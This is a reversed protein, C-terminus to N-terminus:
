GEIVVNPYLSNVVLSPVFGRASSVVKKDSLAIIRAQIQVGRGQRVMTGSLVYDVQQEKALDMMQRSFVLDGNNGVKILEMTKYDVVTMGLVQMESILKEAMLNGLVNTGQLSSDLEVLSAIALRKRPNKQSLNAVLDMALQEAYGDLSKHLYEAQYLNGPTKLYAVPATQQPATVQEQESPAPRYFVGHEQRYPYNNEAQIEEVADEAPVDQWTTEDRQVSPEAQKPEDWNNSSPASQSDSSFMQELPEFNCSCASLTLALLSPLIPSANM